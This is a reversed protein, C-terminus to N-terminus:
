VGRLGGDRLGGNAARQKGEELAKHRALDPSHAVAARWGAMWAGHCATGALLNAHEGASPSPHKRVLILARWLLPSPTTRLILSPFDM